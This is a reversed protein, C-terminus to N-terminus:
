VKIGGEMRYGPSGLDGQGVGSLLCKRSTLTKKETGLM